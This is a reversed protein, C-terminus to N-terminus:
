VGTKELKQITDAVLKNRLTRWEWGDVEISEFDMILGECGHM